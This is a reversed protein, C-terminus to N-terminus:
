CRGCFPVHNCSRGTTPHWSNPPFTSGQSCKKSPAQSPFGSVPRSCRKMSAYRMPVQHCSLGNTKEQGGFFSLPQSATYDGSPSRSASKWRQSGPPLQRAMPPWSLSVLTFFPTHPPPPYHIALSSSCRYRHSLTFLSLESSLLLSLLFFHPFLVKFAKIYTISHIILV